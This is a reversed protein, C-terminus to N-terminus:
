SATTIHLGSAAADVTKLSKVYGKPIKNVYWGKPHGLHVFLTPGVPVLPKGM